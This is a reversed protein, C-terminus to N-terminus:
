GSTKGFAFASRLLNGRTRVRRFQLDISSHYDQEHHEAGLGDQHDDGEKESRQRQECARCSRVRHFAIVAHAAQRVSRVM